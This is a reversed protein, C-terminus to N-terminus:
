EENVESYSSVNLFIKSQEASIKGTLIYRKGKQPRCTINCNKGSCTLNEGQLIIESSNSGINPSGSCTNCCTSNMCYRRTCALSGEQIEGEVSIIAGQLSDINGSVEAPTYVRPGSDSYAILAGSVVLLILFVAGVVYPREM